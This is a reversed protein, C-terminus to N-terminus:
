YCRFDKPESRRAIERMYSNGATLRVLGAAFGPHTEGADDGMSVRRPRNWVM